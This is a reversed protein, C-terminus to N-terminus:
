RFSSLRLRRQGCKALKMRYTRGSPHRIIRVFRYYAVAGGCGGQRYAIVTLRGGTSDWGKAEAQPGGWNTWQLGRTRIDRVLRGNRDVRSFFDCRRPRAVYEFRGDELCAILTRPEHGEVLPRYTARKWSMYRGSSLGGKYCRALSASCTWGHPVDGRMDAKYLHRAANCSVGHARIPVGEVKGCALSTVQGRASAPAFAFVALLCAAAISCVATCALQTGRSEV